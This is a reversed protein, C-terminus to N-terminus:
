ATVPPFDAPSVDSAIEYIKDIRNQGLMDGHSKLREATPASYICFSKISGADDVVVHSHEWTVDPFQTAIIKKSRVGINAMEEQENVSYLREIVFRPM